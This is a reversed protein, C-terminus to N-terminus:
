PCQVVVKVLIRLGWLGIGNEEREGAICSSGPGYLAGRELEESLLDELSKGFIGELGRGCYSAERGSGM